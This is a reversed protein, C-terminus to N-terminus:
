LLIHWDLCNGPDWSGGMLFLSHQGAINKPLNGDVLVSSFVRRCGSFFSIIKFFWAVNKLASTAIIEAIVAFFLLAYAGM